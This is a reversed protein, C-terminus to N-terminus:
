RPEPRAALATVDGVLLRYPAEDKEIAPFRGLPNLFRSDGADDNITSVEGALVPADEAWFEANYGLSQQRIRALTGM